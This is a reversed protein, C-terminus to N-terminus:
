KCHSRPPKLTFNVARTLYDPNPRSAEPERLDVMESMVDEVITRAPVYIQQLARQKVTVKIKTATLTGPAATHNHQISPPIFVGDKEHLIVGCHTTKNRVSCWWTRAGNKERKLTYSFGINDVLKPKGRQTANDFPLEVNFSAHISDDEEETQMPEEPLNPQQCESCTWNIVQRDKVMQRYVARTIGINGCKRHQWKSCVDCEIAEQRPRVVSHCWICNDDEM